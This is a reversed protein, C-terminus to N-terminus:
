RGSPCQLRRAHELIKFATPSPTLCIVGDKLPGVDVWDVGRMMMDIECAEAASITAGARTLARGLEVQFFSVAGGDINITMEAM